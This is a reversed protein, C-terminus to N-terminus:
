TKFHDSDFSSYIDKQLLLKGLYDYNIIEDARQELGDANDLTETRKIKIIKTDVVETLIGQIFTCNEGFKMDTEIAKKLNFTADNEFYRFCM